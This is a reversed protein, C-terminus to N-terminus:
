WHAMCYCCPSCFHCSPHLRDLFTVCRDDVVSKKSQFDYADYVQSSCCLFKQTPLCPPVLHKSSTFCCSHVPDSKRYDWLRHLISLYLQAGLFCKSQSQLYIFRLYSITNKNDKYRQEFAYEALASCVTFLVAKSSNNMTCRYRSMIRRFPFYSAELIWFNDTQESTTVINNKSEGEFCLFSQTDIQLM